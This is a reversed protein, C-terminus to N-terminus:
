LFSIETFNSAAVYVPRGPEQIFGMKILIAILIFVGVLILLFRVCVQRATAAPRRRRNPRGRQPYHTPLHSSM